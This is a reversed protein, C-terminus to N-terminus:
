PQNVIEAIVLLRQLTTGPPWCTMLTLTKRTGLKRLYSVETPSVIKTETIKYIYKQKQFYIDVEDGLKLKNLLYFVSNYKSAEYFNASSHAFLFVNGPENPLASGKAHAIGRSLALQYERSDFPDVNAIIKANAGIKPIIIGFQTDVSILQPTAISASRLQYKVEQTFVPFFITFMLGISSLLLIIGFFIPFRSNKQVATSSSM